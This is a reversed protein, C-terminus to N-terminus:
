GGQKAKKFGSLLVATQEHIQDNEFSDLYNETVGVNSHGLLESIMDVNSGSRKLVTAFSHRATSTTVPKEIELEIAIRKIYKNITKLLQKRVKKKKEEDMKDNIHPFIYVNKNISPQGWKKIIQISEKKLAVTITKKERQNNETKARKFSLINKDINKWKLLCFDKVNMGNSLYLFLWYDKAMDKVSMLEAEYSYIKSVEEVRLAKKTNKSKPIRYKNKGIGFPYVKRDISQCNYVARLSRMYIGVTSISNGKELMWKEYKRLTYQTVESFTLGKYFKEISNKACEYSDATGIRDESKLNKIYKDFAFSISDTTNRNDLYHEKFIDFSFVSLNEIVKDAKKEFYEIKRKIEKQKPSKRKGYFIQEFENPTLDIGTQFYKRKRNFTVKIKVLSKGNEKPRNKDLYIAATAKKM